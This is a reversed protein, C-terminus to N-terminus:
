SSSYLFWHRYINRHCGLLSKWLFEKRRSLTNLFHSGQIGRYLQHALVKVKTEMWSFDPCSSLNCCLFPKLGLGLSSLFPPDCNDLLLIPFTSSKNSIQYRCKCKPSFATTSAKIHLRTDHPHLNYNLLQEKHLLKYYQHCGFSFNM